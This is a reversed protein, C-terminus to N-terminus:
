WNGRPFVGCPAYRSDCCAPCPEQVPESGLYEGDLSVHEREEVIYRYDNCYSCGRYPQDWEATFAIWKGDPSFYPHSKQGIGTTLQLATGGDRGVSWLEGGYAFVIHSANLTPDQMLLPKEDQAKVAACTLLILVLFASLKKM